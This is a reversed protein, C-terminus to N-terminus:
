PAATVPTQRAHTSIDSTTVLRAGILAEGVAFATASVSTVAVTTSQAEGSCTLADRAGEGRALLLDDGVPQAIMVEVSADLGAQCVFTLGVTLEGDSPDLTASTIHITQDPDWLPAVAGDAPSASAPAVASGLALAVGATAALALVSGRTRSRTRPHVARHVTRFSM